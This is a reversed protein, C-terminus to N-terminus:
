HVARIKFKFPIGITKHNMYSLKPIFM